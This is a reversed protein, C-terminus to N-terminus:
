NTKGGMASLDEVFQKAKEINGSTAAAMVTPTLTEAQQEGDGYDSWSSQGLRRRRDRLEAETANYDWV